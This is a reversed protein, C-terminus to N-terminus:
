QLASSGAAKCRKAFASIADLWASLSDMLLSGTGSLAIVRQLETSAPLLLELANQAEVDSSSQLHNVQGVFTNMPGREPIAGGPLAAEVEPCVERLTMLPALSQSESASPSVSASDTSSTSPSPASEPESDGDGCAGTLAVMLALAIASRIM